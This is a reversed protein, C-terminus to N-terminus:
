LDPKFSQPLCFTQGEDIDKSTIERNLANHNPNNNSVAINTQDGIYPIPTWEPHPIQIVVANTGLFLWVQLMLISISAFRELRHQSFWRQDKNESFHINSLRDNPLGQNETPHQM